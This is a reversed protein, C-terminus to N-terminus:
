KMSSTRKFQVPITVWVRVPRDRQMAPQWKLKHVAKLTAEEFGMKNGSDKLIQVDEVRGNVNVLVRIVVLTEIGARLAVEPYVLNKYLAALGGIPQPPTDYAVFIPAADAAPAPPPPPLVALDLQTSSITVDEPVAEEETPIPVSPRPPPPPRRVQETVPIEEVAIKILVPQVERTKIEFGRILQVVLIVSSLAVLHACELTKRYVQRQFFTLHREKPPPEPVSRRWFAKSEPSEVTREVEISFPNFGNGKEYGFPNFIRSKKTIFM